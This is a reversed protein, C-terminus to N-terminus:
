RAPLQARIEDLLGKIAKLNDSTSAMTVQLDPSVGFLLFIARDEGYVLAAQDRCALMAAELIGRLRERRHAIQEPTPPPLPTPDDM